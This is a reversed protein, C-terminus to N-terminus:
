SKIKEASRSEWLVGLSEAQEHASSALLGGRAFISKGFLFIERGGSFSRVISCTSGAGNSARIKLLRNRNEIIAM